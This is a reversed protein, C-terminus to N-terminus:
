LNDSRLVASIPYHDSYNVSHTHYQVIEYSNDTLIYDIRLFPIRGGYTSGIGSARERFADKLGEKMKHYTFSSPPENMDGALIINYSTQAAHDKIMAAQQARVVATSRYKSLITRAENWTSKDQLDINDLMQDTVKTINNSQLHFSYVRVTDSEIILDAWVCSNTRTGFDIEGEDIVPYNTVIATRKNDIDIFKYGEFKQLLINKHRMNFEQLCIIRPKASTMMYDMVDYLTNDTGKAALGAFFNTNYSMISIDHSKLDKSGSNLGIFGTTYTWGLVVCLVSPIMWRVENFLWFIIFVCNAFFLMPYVLGLTSFIWMKEPAFYSTLYVLLTAIIVLINIVVFIKKIPGM